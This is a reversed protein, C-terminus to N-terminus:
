SELKGTIEVDVVKPEVAKIMLGQIPLVYVPLQYTGPKLDSTDVYARVDSDRLKDILERSGEAKVTVSPTSFRVSSGMLPGQLSVLSVQAFRRETWEQEIKVYVDVPKLQTSRNDEFIPELAVTQVFSRTRGSLLIPQTKIQSLGELIKQPGIVDVVSPNIVTDKVQYGKDPRGAFNVKVPLEKEVLRDLVVELQKPHVDLIQARAPITFDKDSLAFHVSGANEIGMLNRVVQISNKNADHIVDQPGALTVRLTKADSKVVVMSPSLDLRYPVGYFVRKTTIERQVMTWVIAALVISSIKIPLNSLILDQLKM